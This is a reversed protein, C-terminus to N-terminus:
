QGRLRTEVRRNDGSLPDAAIPKSQGYGKAVLKTANVGHKGLYRVVAQARRQSLNLNYSASGAADTHGEVMFTQSSLQPTKLAKAFEDLNLKAEPELEDSNYKFKVVLDFASPPKALEVAHGAKACEAETGVCLGRTVAPKPAAAPGFHKVIDDAKYTQAGAAGAMSLVLAGSLAVFATLGPQKRM